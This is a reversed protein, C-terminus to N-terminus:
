AALIHVPARADDTPAQPRDEAEAFIRAAILQVFRRAGTFSAWALVRVFRAEDNANGLVAEAMKEDVQYPAKALVIALRAIERDDGRLCEIDADVWSRSIPMQEGHWKQLSASVVHRVSPSVVDITEREVTAAWRALADAVRPNPKAWKMDEPLSAPPLL